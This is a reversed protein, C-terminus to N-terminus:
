SEHMNLSAEYATLHGASGSDPHHSDDADYSLVSTHRLTDDHCLVAGFCESVVFMERKTHM